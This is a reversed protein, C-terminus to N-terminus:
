QIQTYLRIQNENCCGFCEDLKEKELRDRNRPLVSFLVVRLVSCPCGLVVYEILMLMAVCVM